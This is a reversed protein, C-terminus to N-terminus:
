RTLLDSNFSLLSVSRVDVKYKLAIGILTDGPKIYYKSPNPTDSTLPLEETSALGHLVQSDEQAEGQLISNPRPSPPAPGDGPSDHRAGEQESEEEEDDDSDGLAFVDHDHMGGDINVREQTKTISSKKYSNRASM